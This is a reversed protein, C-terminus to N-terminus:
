APGPTEGAGGTRRRRQLCDNYSFPNLVRVGTKAFDARNRTVVTLDHILATAGILKDLDNEHYPM